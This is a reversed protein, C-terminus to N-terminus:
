RGPWRKAYNWHDLSFRKVVILSPTRTMEPAVVVTTEDKADLTSDSQQCTTLTTQVITSSIHSSPYMRRNKKGVTRMPYVVDQMSTSTGAKKIGSGFPFISILLM